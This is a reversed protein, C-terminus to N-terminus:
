HDLASIAQESAATLEAVNSQTAQECLHQQALRLLQDRDYAIARSQASRITGSTHIVRIVCPRNHVKRMFTLAAWVLRFHDRPARIIGLGTLPNFYKVQLGTNTVGAGYDGFNEQIAERVLKSLERTSLNEVVPQLARLAASEQPAEYLIEILLYRNKFRVM